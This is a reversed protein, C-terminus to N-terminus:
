CRKVHAVLYFTSSRVLRIRIDNIIIIIIYSKFLMKFLMNQFSQKLFNSVYKKKNGVYKIISSLVQVLYNLEEQM